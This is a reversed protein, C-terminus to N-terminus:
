KRVPPPPLGAVYAAWWKALDVANRDKAQNEAESKRLMDVYFQLQAGLMQSRHQEIELETPAVVQLPQGATPQQAHAAMMAVLWLAIAAQLAYIIIKM